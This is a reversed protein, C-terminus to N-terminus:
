LPARGSRASRRGGISMAVELTHTNRRGSSDARHHGNRTIRMDTPKVRGSKLQCPRLVGGARIVTTRNSAIVLKARRPAPSGHVSSKPRASLLANLCISQYSPTRPDCQHALNAASGDPWPNSVGLGAAQQEESKVAVFRMSPRQAAECIAAADIADNKQREGFPKVYVPPIPRVEHGLQTLQRALSSGPWMAGARCHLEASRRLLGAGKRQVFHIWRRGVQGGVACRSFVHQGSKEWRSM